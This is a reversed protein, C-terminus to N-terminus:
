LLLEKYLVDIEKSLRKIKCFRCKIEGYFYVFTIMILLILVILFKWRESIASATSLGIYISVLITLVSFFGVYYNNIEFKLYNSQEVLQRIKVNKKDFKEPM